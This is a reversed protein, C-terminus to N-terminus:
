TTPQGSKLTTQIWNKFHLVFYGGLSVRRGYLFATGLQGAKLQKSTTPQLETRGVFQPRVLRFEDESLGQDRVGSQQVALPGGSPAIMSTDIPIDTAQPELSHINSQVVNVGHFLFRVPAHINIEVANFQQEDISILIQKKSPDAFHMLVDGQKVYSGQLDALGRRFVVGDFPALIQLQAVKAEMESIQEDLSKINAFEAQQLSIENKQGHIRAQIKAIERAQRLSELELNLEPNDIVLLRQGHSVLQGNEVKLDRIFGSAAARIIREDHFQVIAPASSIEPAKIGYFCILLMTLFGASVCSFRLRKIPSTKAAASIKRLFGILPFWIWFIGGTLALILGMGGLLTSAVLLLSLALLIRWFFSCLGYTAVYHLEQQGCITHDLPFGFTFHRIRDGFWASGKGYLNVIGLVDSLLYYGDFRLLPNANFLLTSIGAMIVIQYCLDSLWPSSAQAWVIVAIFAVLLEVYMGAASVVMRQRRDSFRWSSTVNVFALPAFLILLVGAEPVEGGYKQCAVGHATEHLVKLFAWIVILWFWRDVAWFGVSSGCFRDYDGVIISWAYGGLLLWVCFMWGSFLHKAFPTIKSLIRDPNLLNIRFSIPNLLAFKSQIARAQAAKRLNQTRSPTPTDLLHISSLWHCIKTALEINFEEAGRQKKMVEVTESVTRKGDLLMIFQYERYGIQFFRSRVPDEIVAVLRDSSQRLEINLENRLTPCCDLWPNTNPINEQESQSDSPISNM